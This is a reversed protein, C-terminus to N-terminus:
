LLARIRDHEAERRKALEMLRSRAGRKVIRVREDFSDFETIIMAWLAVDATRYKDAYYQRGPRRKLSRTDTRVADKGLVRDWAKVAVGYMREQQDSVKLLRREIEQSLKATDTYKHRILDSRQTIRAAVEIEKSSTSASISATALLLDVSELAVEYLRLAEAADGVRRRLQDAYAPRLFPLLEEGAEVYDSTCDAVAQKM